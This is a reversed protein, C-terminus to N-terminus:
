ARLVAPAVIVASLETVWQEGGIDDIARGCRNTVGHVLQGQAIPVGASNFRSREITPAVTVVTGKAIAIICRV